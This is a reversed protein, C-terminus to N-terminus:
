SLCQDSADHEYECQHLATSMYVSNLVNQMVNDVSPVDAPTVIFASPLRNVRDPWRSLCLLIWLPSFGYLHWMHSLANLWDPLRFTWMLIWVPSLGYLHESHLLLKRSEPLKCVCLRWTCLLMLFMQQLWVIFASPQCTVHTLLFEHLTTVKLCAYTSMFTHLRINATITRFTEICLTFQFTM